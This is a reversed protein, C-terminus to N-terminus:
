PSDLGRCGGGPWTRRQKTYIAVSYAVQNETNLTKKQKGTSVTATFSIAQFSKDGFKCVVCQVCPERGETPSLGM